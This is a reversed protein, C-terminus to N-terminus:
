IISIWSTEIAPQGPSQEAGPLGRVGAAVEGDKDSDGDDHGRDDSKVYVNM